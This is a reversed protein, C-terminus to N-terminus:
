EAATRIDMGIDVATASHTLAGISVFDVGTAAIAPLRELTIGGSAELEARGDNFEVISRMLDDSMNDLLVRDAGAEIAERAEEFTDAEVEVLLEPHRERALAVSRAIGGEGELSALHRHNDKIMVMDYLGMRHNACGGAAVALKELVRWGPTTKRTDLVVLGSGSVAAAYEASLTAIGSLRQLFNLAVREASLLSAARGSVEAIAEGAGVREGDSVFASFDVDPDIRGFAMSAVDLGSVVCPERASIVASARLGEPLVSESTADGNGVDEEVAMAVLAEVRKLDDGSLDM